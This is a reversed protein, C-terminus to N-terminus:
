LLIQLNKFPLQRDVEEKQVGLLQDACRLSQPNGEVFRKVALQLADEPGLIHDQHFRLPLPHANKHIICFDTM